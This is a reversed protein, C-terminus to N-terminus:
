NLFNVSFLSHSWDIRLYLGKRQNMSPSTTDNPACSPVNKGMARTNPSIGTHANAALRMIIGKAPKDTM